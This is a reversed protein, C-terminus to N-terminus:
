YPRTPESIHILSLDLSDLRQYDPIQEGVADLLLFDYGHGNHAILPHNGVFSRFSRLAEAPGPADDVMEQTIGTLELTQPRLRRTPRVLTEFRDIEEGDRVLVAGIEIIEHQPPHTQDANAELDFIVYESIAM